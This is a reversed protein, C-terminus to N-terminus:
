RGFGGLWTTLEDRVMLLGRPSNRLLCALSEITTDDCWCRDAIPEEPETPPEGSKSRKWQTMSREYEARAVKYSKLAQEHEKMARRQRNRIALLALEQAPSKHTGSKGVVATWLIAPESWGQKLEVRRSNGIASACGALLPLAIFSPDCGLAKSAERTFTQLPDPLDSSCM